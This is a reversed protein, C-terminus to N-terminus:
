FARVVHAKATTEIDLSAQSDSVFITKIKM